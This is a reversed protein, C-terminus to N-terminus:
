PNESNGSARIVKLKGDAIQIAKLKGVFELGAQKKYFEAALNEKRLESMIQEPLVQGNVILKDANVVLIGGEKDIKFSGEGTLFRDPYGIFALPLNVKANAENGSFDVWVLGKLDKWDPNFEILSNVDQASLDLEEPGSGTDLGKMFADVRDKVNRYEDETAGSAPLEMAKTVTYGEVLTDVASKVAFYLAVAAVVLVLLSTLCGYFFCGHKKKTPATDAIQYDM